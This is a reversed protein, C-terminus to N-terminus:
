DTAVMAFRAASLRKSKIFVSVEDRIVRIVCAPIKAHVLVHAISETATLIAVVVTTM